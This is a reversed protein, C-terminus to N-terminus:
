FKLNPYGSELKALKESQQKQAALRVQLAAAKTENDLKPWVQYAGNLLTLQIDTEYPALQASTKLYKTFQEDAEGLYGKFQVVNAMSYFNNPQTMLAHEFHMIAERYFLNRIAPNQQAIIARIIHLKGLEIHYIPSNPIRESADLMQDRAEVWNEINLPAGPTALWRGIQKRTSLTEIDIWAQKLSPGIVQFFFTLAILIAISGLVYHKTKKLQM